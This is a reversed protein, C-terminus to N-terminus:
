CHLLITSHFKVCPEEFRFNYSSEFRDNLDDFSDEEEVLDSDSGNLAKQVDVASEEGSDDKVEKSSQKGNTPKSGTVEHYTPVRQSSKDVWGRNLIYSDDVTLVNLALFIYM